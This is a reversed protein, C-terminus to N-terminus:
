SNDLEGRGEGSVLGKGHVGPTQEPCEEGREDAELLLLLLRAVKPVDNGLSLKTPTAFPELDHKGRCSESQIIIIM